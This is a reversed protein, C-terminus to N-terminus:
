KAKSLYVGNAIAGIVGTVAFLYSIFMTTDSPSGAFIRAIGTVFILLCGVLAIVTRARRKM